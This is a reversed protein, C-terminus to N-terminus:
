KTKGPLVFGHMTEGQKIGTVQAILGVIGWISVMVFLAVISWGMGGISKQREAPNDAGKWIFMVLFWFFALLGLGVLIPISKDIVNKLLALLDLLGNSTAGLGGVGNGSPFSNPTFQASLSFVGGVISLILLSTKKM